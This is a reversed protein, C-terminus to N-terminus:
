AYLWFLKKRNTPISMDARILYASRQPLWAKLWRENEKGQICTKPEQLHRTNRQLYLVIRGRPKIIKNKITPGSDVVVKGSRNTVQIEHLNKKKRLVQCCTLWGWREVFKRVLDWPEAASIEEMMQSLSILWVRRGLSSHEASVKQFIM